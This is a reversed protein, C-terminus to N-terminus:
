NRFAIIGTATVILGRFLDGDFFPEKKIKPLGEAVTLIGLIVIAIPIIMSMIGVFAGLPDMAIDFGILALFLGALLQLHWQRDQTELIAKTDDTENRRIDSILTVFTDGIMLLLPADDLLHMFPHKEPDYRDLHVKWEDATEHIHYQGKRYSAITGPSPVNIASKKWDAGLPVTVSKKQSRSRGYEKM